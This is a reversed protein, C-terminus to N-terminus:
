LLVNKLEKIMLKKRESLFEDFNNLEYSINKPMYKINDIGVEEVWDKLPKDNKSENEGGILIQLNALTDRKYQWDEITNEDIIEGNPLVLKEIKEKEFITHPHMHDQHFKHQSYKMNPYLLSLIMFTYPGKTLNEFLLKIEDKNYKLTKDGTFHVEYLFELKFAENKHKKLEERISTLASNSAAGFIQKLQSIIIYKKIEEKCSKYEGGNYIYYIIPMVCLNSVMTESSFGFENLLEITKKISERINTWNNKITDVNSSEFNEVKLTVSLDLIYLCTRMIFDNNFRFGEGIKNIETLFEDIKERAKDWRSVITSFLLDTKSLVTGGSNVRIFIDLVEDISDSSKEYYNLLEEKTIKDHLLTINEIALEDSMINLPIYVKTPLESATYQLINKVKFWLKLNSIDKKDEM